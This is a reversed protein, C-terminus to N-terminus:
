RFFFWTDHGSVKMRCFRRDVATKLETMVDIPETAHQSIFWLSVIPLISNIGEITKDLSLVSQLFSM